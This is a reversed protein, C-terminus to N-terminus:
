RMFELNKSEIFACVAQDVAFREVTTLSKGREFVVSSQTAATFREWKGTGAADAISPDLNNIFNLISHQFKTMLVLDALSQKTMNTGSIPFLYHLDSGQPVGEWPRVPTSQLVANFRYKFVNTVESMQLAQTNAPCFIQLHNLIAVVRSWQAGSLPPGINKYKSVPYYSLLTKLTGDSVYPFNSKLFAIISADTGFGNYVPVSNVLETTTTGMLVPVKAFKGQKMLISPYDTLLFDDIVPGFVSAPNIFKSDAIVKNSANVLLDIPCEQLCQWSEPKTSKNCGTTSVITDLQNQWVTYNSRPIPSSSTASGSHLIAGRFLGDSVGEKRASGFPGGIEVEHALLLYTALDAGSGQGGIVVKKPDGGFYPVMKQLWILALRSDLLGVNLAGYTDAEQGGPFGLIGLRYNVAVYIIPSGHAISAKVLNRGDVESKDGTNFNGGHFFVYVPLLKEPVSGSANAIVIVPKDIAGKPNSPRIIDLYTCDEYGPTSSAGSGFENCRNSTANTALIDGFDGMEEAFLPWLRIPKYSFPVGIFVDTGYSLDHVGVYTEAISLSVLLLAFVFTLTAKMM